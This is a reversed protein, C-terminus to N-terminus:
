EIEYAPTEPFWCFHIGRFAMAPFDNIEVCPIQWYSAKMVGRQAEELQRMANLANLVGGRSSARITCAEETAALGYGDAVLPLEKQLFSVEPRANWSAAFVNMIDATWDANAHLYVKCGDKMAFAGDKVEMAQPVPMVRSRVFDKYKDM